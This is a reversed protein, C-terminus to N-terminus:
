VNMIYNKLYGQLIFRFKLHVGEEFFNPIAVYIVKFKKCHDVNSGRDEFLPTMEKYGLM